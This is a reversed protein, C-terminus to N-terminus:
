VLAKEQCAGLVGAAREGAGGDWGEIRAPRRELADPRIAAIPGPDEGLLTNTGQTITIPRETNPRLTFCPVGLTSAEEQVGGSDTVIAGAAIELGLFDLYGLPELCQVGADELGSLLGEARLRETTRPHVPFLV